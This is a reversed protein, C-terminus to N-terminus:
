RLKSIEPIESGKAPSPLFQHHGGCMGAVAINHQLQDSGVLIHFGCLALNQGNQLNLGRAYRDDIFMALDSSGYSIADPQSLLSDDTLVDSFQKVAPWQWRLLEQAEPEM